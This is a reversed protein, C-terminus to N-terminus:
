KSQIYSSFNEDLPSPRPQSYSIADTLINPALCFTGLQAEKAAVTRRHAIQDVYWLSSTLDSIVDNIHPRESTKPISTTVSPDEQGPLSHDVPVYNHGALILLQVPDERDPTAALLRVFNYDFPDRAPRRYDYENVAKLFSNNRAEILKKVAAPSM